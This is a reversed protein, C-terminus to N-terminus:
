KAGCNTPNTNKKKKQMPYTIFEIENVKRMKLSRNNTEWYKDWYYQFCFVHIKWMIAKYRYKGHWKEKKTKLNTQTSINFKIIEHRLKNLLFM